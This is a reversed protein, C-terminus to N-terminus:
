EIRFAYNRINSADLPAKHIPHKPESALHRALANLDMFVVGARDAVNPDSLTRVPQTTLAIVRQERNSTSLPEGFLCDTADDENHTAADKFGLREADGKSIPRLGTFAALIKDRVKIMANLEGITQRLGHHGSPGVADAAIHEIPAAPNQYHL